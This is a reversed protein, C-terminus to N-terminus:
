LSAGQGNARRDDADEQHAPRDNSDNDHMSLAFGLRTDKLRM